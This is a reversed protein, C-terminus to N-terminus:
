YFNPVTRQPFPILHYNMMSKLILKQIYILHFCTALTKLLFDGKLCMFLNLGTGVSVQFCWCRRFRSILIKLFINQTEITLAKPM